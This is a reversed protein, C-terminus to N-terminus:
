EEPFGLILGWCSPCLLAFTVETGQRRGWLRAVKPGISLKLSSWYIIGLDRLFARVGLKLCLGSTFAWLNWPRVELEPSTFTLTEFGPLPRPFLFRGNEPRIKSGNWGFCEDCSNLCRRRSRWRRKRRWRRSTSRTSTPFASTPLFTWWTSSFFESFLLKLYKQFESKVWGKFCICCIEM